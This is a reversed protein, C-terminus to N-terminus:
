LFEVHQGLQRDKLELFAKITGTAVTRPLAAVQEASLRVLEEFSQLNTPLPVFTNTETGFTATFLRM